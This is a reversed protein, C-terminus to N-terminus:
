CTSEMTYDYYIDKCQPCIKAEEFDKILERMFKDYKKRGEQSGITYPYPQKLPFFYEKIEEIGKGAVLYREAAERISRRKQAEIREHMGLGLKMRAENIDDSIGEM